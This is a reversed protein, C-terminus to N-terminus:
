QVKRWRSTFPDDAGAGGDEMVNEKASAKNRKVIMKGQARAHAQARAMDINSIARNEWEDAIKDFGIKTLTGTPSAANIARKLLDTASKGPVSLVTSLNLDASAKKLIEMDAREQRSVFNKSVWRGWTDEDEGSSLMNVWSEGINPNREFVEKMNNISIIANENTPIQSVAKNVSKGYDSKETKELGTLPVVEYSNGNFEFPEPANFEGNEKGYNPYKANLEKEKMGLEREKDQRDQQLKMQYAPMKTALEQQLVKDGAFMSRVDFLQQGKSSEITMLFPNSGDISSLKFEEGIARGYGELINQALIRQSQPDLKDINDAYAVVQPMFEEKAAERKQHWENREMASQNVERFYNMVKDYNDYDERKKAVNKSQESHEMGKFIGAGFNRWAGRPREGSKNSFAGSLESYLKANVDHQNPLSAKNKYLDSEISAGLALPSTERTKVM